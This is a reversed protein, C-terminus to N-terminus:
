IRTLILNVIISVWLPDYVAHLVDHNLCLARVCVFNRLLLLWLLLNDPTM